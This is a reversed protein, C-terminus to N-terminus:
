PSAPPTPGTEGKTKRPRGLKKKAPETGNGNAKILEQLKQHFDAINKLKEKARFYFVATSGWHVGLPLLLLFDWLCFRNLYLMVLGAAACVFALRKIWQWMRDNFQLLAKCSMKVAEAQPSDADLGTAFALDVMAAIKKEWTRVSNQFHEWGCLAINLGTVLEIFGGGGATTWLNSDM